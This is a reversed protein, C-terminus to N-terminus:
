ECRHQKSARWESDPRLRRWHNNKRQSYGRGPCGLALVTPVATSSRSRTCRVPLSVRHEAVDACRTLKQECVLEDVLWWRLMAIKPASCVLDLYRANHAPDGCTCTCTHSHPHTCTHPPRPPHADGAGFLTVSISESLLLKRYVLPGAAGRFRSM